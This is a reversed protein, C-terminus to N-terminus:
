ENTDHQVVQKSARYASKALEVANEWEEQSYRYYEGNICLIPPSTRIAPLPIICDEGPAFRAKKEEYDEIMIAQRMASTELKIQRATREFESTPNPAPGTQGYVVHPYAPHDIAKMKIKIKAKYKYRKVNRSKFNFFCKL